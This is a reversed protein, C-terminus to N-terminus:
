PTNSRRAPSRVALRRLDDTTQPGRRLAALVRECQIAKAGESPSFSNSDFGAKDFTNLGEANGESLAKQQHTM